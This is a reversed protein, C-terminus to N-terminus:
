DGEADLKNRGSRTEAKSFARATPVFANGSVHQAERSFSVRSATAFIRNRDEAQECLLRTAIANLWGGDAM